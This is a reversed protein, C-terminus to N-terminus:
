RGLFRLNWESAYGSFGGELFKRLARVQNLSATADGSNFSGNGNLTGIIGRAVGGVIGGENNEHEVIRDFAEDISLMALPCHYGDNFGIVVHGHSTSPRFSDFNDEKLGVNSISYKEKLSAITTWVNCRENTNLSTRLIDYLMTGFETFNISGDGAYRDMLAVAYNDLESQRSASVGSYPNFPLVRSM